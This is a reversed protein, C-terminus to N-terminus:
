ENIRRRGELAAQTIGAVAAKPDDAKFVANGAVLVDAGAAAVRGATALGIGGDVQILPAVGAARAVRVVEAVREETGEIYGQGSFGPNVSMVLVMDVDRIYPEVVAVDTAPKLALAPHVGADRIIELVQTIEDAADDLAEVHVTIWDSGAELFWPLQELPNDIMLHVDLPLTTIKKLHAVFPVGLTLNPVFHGDMVDVHAFGAGANEILRISDEMNMFDASLLSPAIRISEFM